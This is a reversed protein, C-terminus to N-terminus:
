EYYSCLFIIHCIEFIINYDDIIDNDYVYMDEIYDDMSNGYLDVNKIDNNKVGYTYIGYKLWEAFDEYSEMNTYECSIDKVDYIDYKNQIYMVVYMPIKGPNGNTYRDIHEMLNDYFKVINNIDTGTDISHIEYCGYKQYMIKDNMIGNTDANMNVNMNGNADVFKTRLDSPDNKPLIKNIIINYSDYIYQLSYTVGSSIGKIIAM